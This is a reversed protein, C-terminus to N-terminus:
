KLITVGHDIASTRLLGPDVAVEANYITFRTFWSTSFINIGVSAFEVVNLSNSQSPIWLNVVAESSLSITFTQM